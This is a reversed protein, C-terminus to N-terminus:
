IPCKGATHTPTRPGFRPDAGPPCRLGHAGQDLRASSIANAHRLVHTTRQGLHPFVQAVACPSADEGALEGCEAVFRGVSSAVHILSPRLMSMSSNRSARMTSSSAHPALRVGILPGGKGALARQMASGSQVPRRACRPANEGVAIGLSADDLPMAGQLSVVRISRVLHEDEAAFALV